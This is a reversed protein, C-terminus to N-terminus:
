GGAGQKFGTPVHELVAVVAGRKFGAPVHNTEFAKSCSKLVMGQARRTLRM